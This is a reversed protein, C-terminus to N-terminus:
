VTATSQPTSPGGEDVIDSVRVKKARPGTEKLEHELDEVKRKLDMERRETEELASRLKDDSVHPTSEGKKANLQQELEAVRGRFLDNIV